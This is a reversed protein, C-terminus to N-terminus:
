REEWERERVCVCDRESEPEPGGWRLKTLFTKRMKRSSSFQIIAKEREGCKCGCVTNIGEWERQWNGNHLPILNSSHALPFSFQRICNNNPFITIQIPHYGWLLELIKEVDVRSGRLIAVCLDIENWGFGVLASPNEERNWSSQFRPRMGWHTDAPYDVKSEREQASSVFDGLLNRWELFISRYDDTMRYWQPWYNLGQPCIVFGLMMM